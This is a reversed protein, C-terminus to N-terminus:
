RTVGVKIEKMVVPKIKIGKLEKLSDATKQSILRYMLAAEVTFRDGKVGPTIKEVHEKMPKLCTDRLIEKAKAINDVPNGKGDGFVTGFTVSKEDIYGRSDPVGSSYVTKGKGDKVVVKLWVQRFNAVGTPVNHGAGNNVIRLIIDDGSLKGDIKLDLANKLREEAMKARVSDKEGEPIVSNGGVFYHTFIHDREPGGGAATGPNKERKTSGTAPHGPRQYMHCGQCHVGEKNYPSSKWEEFTTELWTGYVVHKVNHCTGCIGSKTHFESFETKHYGAESDKFPGRKIGPDSEGNGPDYKYKANYKKYAGTISHCYDCQVGETAPDKIANIDDSTKKPYGSIFGIPVHCKQCSEAEELEDKVTIGKLGDKAVALYIKDKLSLHHLSGSWQSYIESHCGACIGPSVFRSLEYHPVKESCGAILCFLVTFFLLIIIINRKM